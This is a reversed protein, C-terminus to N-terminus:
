LQFDAVIQRLKVLLRREELGMGLYRRYPSDAHGPELLASYKRDSYLEYFGKERLIGILRFIQYKNFDRCKRAKDGPKLLEAFDDCALIREWLDGIKDRYRSTVLEDIQKVYTRVKDKMLDKDFQADKLEVFLRGERAAQLLAEVDFDEPRVRQWEKRMIAFNSM